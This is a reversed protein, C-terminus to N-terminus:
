LMQLSGMGTEPNSIIWNILLDEHELHEIAYGQGGDALDLSPFPNPLLDSALGASRKKLLQEENHRRQAQEADVHHADRTPPAAVDGAIVRSCVRIQGELVPLDM